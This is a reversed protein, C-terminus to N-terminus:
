CHSLASFCSIQEFKDIKKQRLTLHSPISQCEMGLALIWLGVYSTLDLSLGTWIAFFGSKETRLDLGVLSHVEDSNADEEAEGAGLVVDGVTLLALLPILIASSHKQSSRM